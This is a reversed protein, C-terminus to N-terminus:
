KQNRPNNHFTFFPIDVLVTAIWVNRAGITSYTSGSSYFLTPTRRWGGGFAIPFGHWEFFLEAGPSFLSGLKIQQNLSSTNVTQTATSNNNSTTATTNPNSLQYSVVSGLDFVPIFLTVPLNKIYGPIKIDGSFSFGIPAYIGQAYNLDIAYGLYGNVSVNYYANQKISYSGVPLVANEIATEVDSSSKATVLNAVLLGYTTIDSALTSIANNKGNSIKNLIFVFNLVAEPYQGLYFNQYIEDVKNAYV